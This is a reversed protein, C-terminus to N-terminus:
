QRVARGGIMGIVHELPALGKPSHLSIMNDDIKVAFRHAFASEGSHQPRTGATSPVICARELVSV